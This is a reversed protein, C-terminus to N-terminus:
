FKWKRCDVDELGIVKLDTETNCEQKHRRREVVKTESKEFLYRYKQKEQVQWV